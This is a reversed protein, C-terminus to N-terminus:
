GEATPYISPPLYFFNFPSSKERLNQWVKQITEQLLLELLSFRKKEPHYEKWM